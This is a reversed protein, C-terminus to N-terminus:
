EVVILVDKLRQKAVMMGDILPKAKRLNELPLKSVELEKTLKRQAALEKKLVRIEKEKELTEKTLYDTNSMIM